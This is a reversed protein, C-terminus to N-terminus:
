VGLTTLARDVDAVYSGGFLTVHVLLPYLQYLTRRQAFFEPAVPRVERYGDFFADGVSGFLTAMALDVEADAYHIAPDIFCASGDARPLMNGGWLDGHVLSPAIGPDLWQTLRGVLADLRHRLTTPLRGAAHASDACALLRYQGYFERWSATWPNVQPLSGIVTDYGHGFRTSVSQDHLRAIAQGAARQVEDDWSRRGPDIWELLLLDDDVALVHPVPLTAHRLDALM